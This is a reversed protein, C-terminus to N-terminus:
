SLVSVPSQHVAMEHDYFFNKAAIQEDTLRQLPLSYVPSGLSVTGSRAASGQPKTGNFEPGPIGTGAVGAAIGCTVCLGIAIIAFIRLWRKQLCFADFLM